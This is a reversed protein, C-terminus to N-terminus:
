NSDQRTCAELIGSTFQALEEKIALYLIESEPNIM